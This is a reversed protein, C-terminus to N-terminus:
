VYIHKCRVECLMYPFRSICTFWRSPPPILINLLLFIFSISYYIIGIILWLVMTWMDWIGLLFIGALFALRPTSPQTIQSKAPNNNNM